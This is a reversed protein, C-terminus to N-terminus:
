ASALSIRGLVWGFFQMLWFSRVSGCNRRSGEVTLFFHDEFLSREWHQMGPTSKNTLTTAPRIDCFHSELATPCDNDEM